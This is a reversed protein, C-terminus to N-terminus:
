RRNNQKSRPEPFFFKLDLTLYSGNVDFFTRAQEVNDIKYLVGATTIESFPRNYTLGLYFHGKDYTRYEFGINALLSPVVWSKRASFHEFYYDFSDWNSPLFNFSAGFAANLYAQEGLRVYVLGMIPIEYIIYRFESTGSFNLSDNAINLEYNRRSFNIGSEISLQKTLGKRVVMGFSYGSRPKIEFDINDVQDTQAGTNILESSLIPKFQLGFTTLKDQAIVQLRLLLTLPIILFVVVKTM